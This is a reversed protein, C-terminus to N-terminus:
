KTIRRQSTVLIKTFLLFKSKRQYYLLLTWKMLLNGKTKGTTRCKAQRLNPENNKAGSGQKLFWYQRRVTHQNKTTTPLIITSAYRPCILRTSVQRCHCQNWSPPEGLRDFPQHAGKSTRGNDGM